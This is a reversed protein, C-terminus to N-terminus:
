FEISVGGAFDISTSFDPDNEDQSAIYKRAEVYVFTNEMGSETYADVAATKDIWGLQLMLGGGVYPAALTTGELTTNAQVESYIIEYVGGIVYPAVRPEEWFSDMTYRAGLRLQHMSFTADGLVTDVAENKYYGYAAEAGISGLAFNWKYTYSIEMLPMQPPGYLDEFTGVDPNVFDSVYNIPNYLSYTFAILHGWRPRRIKYPVLATSTVLDAPLINNPEVEVLNKQELEELTVPKELLKTEADEKESLYQKLKEGREQDKVAEEEARKLNQAHAPTTAVFAVLIVIILAFIGMLYSNHERSVGTKAM